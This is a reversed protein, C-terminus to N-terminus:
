GYRVYKRPEGFEDHKSAEKENEMFIGSFGIRCIEPYTIHRHHSEFGCAM